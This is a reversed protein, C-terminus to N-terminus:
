PNEQHISEVISSVIRVVEPLAAGVPESLELAYDITAPEVGVVVVRPREDVPIMSLLGALSLNHLSDAKPRSQETLDFTYVAGPPGDAYVADIAVITDTQECMAQAQLVATGIEVCPVEAPLVDRLQRVAHIAVGDDAMLENGLGIVAIRTRAQKVTM